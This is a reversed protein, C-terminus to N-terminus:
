EAGCETVRGKTSGKNEGSKKKTEGEVKENDTKKM